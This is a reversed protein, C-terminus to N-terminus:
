GDSTDGREIEIAIDPCIKVCSCCGTCKTQDTVKVANFGKANIIDWDITIIKQPCVSSCLECGKCREIDITVKFM